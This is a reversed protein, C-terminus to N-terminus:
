GVNFRAPTPRVAAPPRESAVFETGPSASCDRALCCCRHRSPFPQRVALTELFNFPSSLRWRPIKCGAATSPRSTMSPSCRPTPTPAKGTSSNSRRRQSRGTTCVSGTRGRYCPLTRCPLTTKSNRCLVRRPLFHIVRLLALLPRLREPHSSRDLSRATARTSLTGRLRASSRSSLPKPNM